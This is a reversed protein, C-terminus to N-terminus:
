FEAGKLKRYNAKGLNAFNDKVFQEVFTRIEDRDAQNFVSIGQAMRVRLKSSYTTNKFKKVIIQKRAEEFTIQKGKMSHFIINRTKSEMSRIPKNFEDYFSTLIGHKSSPRGFVYKIRAGKYTGLVTPESLMRDRFEGTEVLPIGGKKKAKFSGPYRTINGQRFHRPLINKHWYKMAQIMATKFIRRRGRDSLGELFSPDVFQKFYLAMM